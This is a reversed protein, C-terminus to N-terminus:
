TEPPAEEAVKPPRKRGAGFISGLIVIFVSAFGIGLGAFYTLITHLPQSFVGLTYATFISWVLSATATGLSLSVILKGISALCGYGVAYWIISGVIVGVGGLSTILVYFSVITEGSIGIHPTVYNNILDILMQQTTLDIVLSQGAIILLVGGILLLIFGIKGM